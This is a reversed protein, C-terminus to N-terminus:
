ELVKDGITMARDFAARKKLDTIEEGLDKSSIEQRYDSNERTSEISQKLAVKKASVKRKKAKYYRNLQYMLERRGRRPDRLVFNRVPRIPSIPKIEEIRENM